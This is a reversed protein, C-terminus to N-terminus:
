RRRPLPKILTQGSGPLHATGSFGRGKRGTVRRKLRRALARVPIQGLPVKRRKKRM